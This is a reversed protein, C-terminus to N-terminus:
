AVDKANMIRKPLKMHIPGSRLREDITLREPVSANTPVWSVFQPKPFAGPVPKPVPKAQTAPKQSPPAKPKVPKQNESQVVGNQAKTAQIIGQIQAHKIQAMAEKGVSPTPKPKRNQAPNTQGPKQNQVTKGQLKNKAQDVKAKDKAMKALMAQVADIKAKVIKNNM